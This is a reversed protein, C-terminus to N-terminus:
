KTRKTQNTQNQKDVDNQTNNEHNVGNSTTNKEYNQYHNMYPNNYGPFMPNFRDRMLSSLNNNQSVQDIFPHDPSGYWAQNVNPHILNGNYINVYGYIIQQQPMQAAIVEVTMQRAMTTIEEEGPRRISFTVLIPYIGPKADKPVDLKVWITSPRSRLLMTNREEELPVLIDPMLGPTFTIYDEQPVDPHMPYDMNAERVRYVRIYEKLPSEVDVRASYAKDACMTIQYSLREGALVARREIKPYILTDTSRVKELSSIQQITVAM